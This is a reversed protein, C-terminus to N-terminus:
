QNKPKKAAPGDTQAFSTNPTIEQSALVSSHSIEAGSIPRLSSQQSGEIISQSPANSQPHDYDIIDTPLDDIASCILRHFKTSHHDYINKVFKYATWREKGNSDTFGFSHIEKRWFTTKAGEMVPYHGYIRVSRHDHSISFALPKWDLEKERKVSRFLVVLARLAMSMSQANQRDAIDLAVAGCKVECTLFPFYMRTTAMFYTTLKSGPEGVFPKLKDLQEETFASRGFGVSYDPQPLTGEYEAMSIWSENATEYLHILHKAGYIALNEASPVILRAIDQIVIAENRNRIKECIKKFLDDRFLTDQPVTQDGDLFTMCIQKVSGEKNVCDDIDDHDRMYSGQRELKIEYDPTNYQSGRSERSLQDSSTQISSQSQKRRLFASFKKRAIFQHLYTFPRMKQFPERLQNHHLLDRPELQEPSKGREFDERVQSDQKFYEKRWKGTQVWYALPDATNRSTDTTPIQNPSNKKHHNSPPTPSQKLSCQEQAQSLHHGAM